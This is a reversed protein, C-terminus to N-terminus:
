SRKKARMIEENIWECFVNFDNVVYIETGQSDIFFEYWEMQSESLRGKGTPTKLEILFTKVNNFYDKIHIEM